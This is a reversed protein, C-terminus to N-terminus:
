DTWPVQSMGMIVFLYPVTFVLPNNVMGQAMWVLFFVALIIKM